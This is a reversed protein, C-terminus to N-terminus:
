SSRLNILRETEASDFIKDIILKEIKELFADVNSTSQMSYAALVIDSQEKPTLISKM